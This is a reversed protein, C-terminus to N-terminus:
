NPLSLKCSMCWAGCVAFYLPVYRDLTQEQQCHGAYAVNEASSTDGSGCLSTQESSVYLVYDAGLCVHCERVLERIYVALFCM